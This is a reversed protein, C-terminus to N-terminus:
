LGGAQLGIRLDDFDTIDSSMSRTRGKAGLFGNPSPWLSFRWVPSEGDNRGRSVPIPLAFVALYTRPKRHVKSIEGSVPIRPPPRLGQSRTESPIKGPLQFLSPFDPLDSKPQTDTDLQARLEM